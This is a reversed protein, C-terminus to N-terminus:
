VTRINDFWLCGRGNFVLTHFQVTHCVEASATFGYENCYFQWVHTVSYSIVQEHPHAGRDLLSLATKIIEEVITKCGKQQAETKEKIRRRRM